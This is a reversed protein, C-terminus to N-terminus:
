CQAAFHTQSVSLMCGQQIDYRSVGPLHEAFALDAPEFPHELLAPGGGLATLVFSELMCLLLTSGFILQRLERIGLSALGWPCAPTRIVRPRRRGALAHGRAKSWAECAPGGIPGVVYGCRIAHLWYAQSVPDMLNGLEKDVVINISVTHHLGHEKLVHDRKLPCENMKLFTSSPFDMM